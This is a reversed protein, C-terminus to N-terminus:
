AVRVESRVVKDQIVPHNHVGLGGITCADRPCHISGGALCAQPHLVPLSFSGLRGVSSHLLM